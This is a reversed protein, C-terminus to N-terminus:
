VRRRGQMQKRAQKARMWAERADRDGVPPLDSRAPPKAIRPPTARARKGRLYMDHTTDLRGIQNM